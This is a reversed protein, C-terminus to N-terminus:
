FFKKKGSIQQFYSLDGAKAKFAATHLILFSEAKTGNQIVSSINWM